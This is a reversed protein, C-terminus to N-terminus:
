PGRRRDSPFTGLFKREGVRVLRYAKNEGVLKAIVYSHRNIFEFTSFNTAYRAPTLKIKLLVRTEQPSAQDVAVSLVELGSTTAGVDQCPSVGLMLGVILLGLVWSFFRM